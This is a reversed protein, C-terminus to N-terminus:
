SSVFVFLSHVLNSNWYYSCNSYPTAVILLISLFMPRKQLLSRCFLGINQLSVYIKLCGVLRLWGMTPACILFYVFMYTYIYTRIYIYTHEYIYVYIYMCGCVCMCECVHVRVCWYMCSYVCVYMCVCVCVCVCMCLSIVGQDKKKRLHDLIKKRRDAKSLQEV